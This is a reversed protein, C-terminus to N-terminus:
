RTMATVKAPLEVRMARRGHWVDRTWHVRIKNERQRWFIASDLISGDNLGSFPRNQAPYRGMRPPGLQNSRIAVQRQYVLARGKGLAGYPQTARALAASAVVRRPSPRSNAIPSRVEGVGVPLTLVDRSAQLAGCCVAGVANEDCIAPRRLNPRRSFERRPDYSPM